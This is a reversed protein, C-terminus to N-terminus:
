FYAVEILLASVGTHIETLVLNGQAPTHGTTGSVENDRVFNNFDVTATRSLPTLVRTSTRYRNTLEVRLSM